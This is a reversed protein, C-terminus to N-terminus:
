FGESTLFADLGIIPPAKRATTWERYWDMWERQEAVPRHPFPCGYIGLAKREETSLNDVRARTKRRRKM